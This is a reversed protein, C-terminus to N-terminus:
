ISSTRMSASRIDNGSAIESEMQERVTASVGSVKDGDPTGMVIRSAGNPVTLLYAKVPMGHADTYPLQAYESATRTFAATM